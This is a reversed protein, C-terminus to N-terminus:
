YRYRNNLIHYDHELVSKERELSIIDTELSGIDQQLQKIDELLTRRESESVADSILREEKKRTKKRLKEIETYHSRIRYDANDISKNLNYLNRGAEYGTLFEEELYDPCVGNYQHGSKGAYFGSAERCFSELGETHGDQYQGMNPTVGHEACAERRQGIRSLAAGRSGDEVGISYWDAYLCEEKSMTACGNLLISSLFILPTYLRNM